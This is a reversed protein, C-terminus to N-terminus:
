NQKTNTCSTAVLHRLKGSKTLPLSQHDPPLLHLHHPHYRSFVKGLAAAELFGVHYLFLLTALGARRGRAVRGRFREAAGHQASRLVGAGSHLLLLRAPGAM